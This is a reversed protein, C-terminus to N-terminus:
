SAFTTTSRTQIGRPISTWAPLGFTQAWAMQRLFLFFSGKINIIIWMWISRNRIIFFVAKTFSLSWGIILLPDPDWEQGNQLVISQNKVLTGYQIKANKGNCLVVPMGPFNDLVKECIQRDSFLKNPAPESKLFTVNEVDFYAIAICSKLVNKFAWTESVRSFKSCKQCVTKQRALQM